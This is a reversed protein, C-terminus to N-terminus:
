KNNNNDPIKLSSNNNNNIINYTYGVVIVVVLRSMSRTCTERPSIILVNMDNAKVFPVNLARAVLDRSREWLKCHRFIIIIIVVNINM